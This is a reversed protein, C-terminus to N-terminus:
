RPLLPEVRKAADIMAQSPDKRGVIALIAEEKFIDAVEPLNDFSPWLPRGVNLAEAADQAYPISSAYQEDRLINVKVPGNGNLGMNLTSEDSSLWKIFAWAKEKNEASTNKPIGMAWFDTKVPVVEFDVTESAPFKCFGVHEAISSKSPDTLKYYYNASRVDFALQGNMMLTLWDDAVMNMFDSPIVGQEYLERAVKLAKIMPEETFKINFDEDIFDGGFARAWHIIEQPVECRIGYIRAGDERVGSVAKAMDILEEFSSPPATFGHDQLIKKNYFILSANARMPIAYIKGNFTVSKMLGNSFGSFNEIPDKDLFGNLPTLLEIMRPTLWDSNIFALGVNTSRLSLERYVVDLMGPWPLTRWNLFIGTAKEFEGAIDIKAGTNGVSVDRHVAHSLIELTETAFVMLSLGVLMVLLVLTLSFRRKM